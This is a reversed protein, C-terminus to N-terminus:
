NAHYREVGFEDHKPEEVVDLPHPRAPRNAQKWVEHRIREAYFGLLCAAACIAQDILSHAVVWAEYKIAEPVAELIEAAIGVNGLVHVVLKHPM